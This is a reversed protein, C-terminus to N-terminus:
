YAYRGREEGSVGPLVRTQDSLIARPYPVFVRTHRVKERWEGYDATDTTPGRAPEALLIGDYNSAIVTNGAMRELEMREWLALRCRMLTYAWWHTVRPTTREEPASHLWYGSIPADWGALLPIDDDTRRPSTDDLIRYSLPPIAQRGLSAVGARKLWETEQADRAMERLRWLTSLYSANGDDLAEWEWGYGSQQIDYGCRRAASVEHSWLWSCFQTPGDSCLPFRLGGETDRYGVPGFGERAYPMRVECPAFWVRDDSPERYLRMATGTPVSTLFSLYASRMDIEFAHLLRRGLGPTDARGGLSNERLERRCALSPTSVACPRQSAWIAEGLAGPSVYDGVGCLDFFRRLAMLLAPGPQQWGWIRSETFYANYKGQTYQVGIVGGTQSALVQCHDDEVIERLLPSTLLLPPTYVDYHGEVAIRALEPWNHAEYM